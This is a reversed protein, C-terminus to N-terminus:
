NTYTGPTAPAFIKVTIDRATPVTGSPTDAITNVSGSFDGGTCTITGGTASGDHTCFFRAASAINSDAASIFRSGAPLYDKVVVSSVPDTGLNSVHLKYTVVGNTAVPAPGVANTQTKQITLQNFAGKDSNGTGVVTDDTAVNNLENFEPIT